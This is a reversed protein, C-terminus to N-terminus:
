LVPKGSQDLDQKSNLAMLTITHKAVDLKYKKLREKVYKGQNIFTDDQSQKIQLGLFIKLEGVMSM